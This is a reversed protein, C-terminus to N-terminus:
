FVEKFVTKGENEIPYPALHAHEADYVKGSVKEVNYSSEQYESVVSVAYYNENEYITMDGEFNAVDFSGVVGSNNIAETVFRVHMETDETPKYFEIAEKNDQARNFVPSKSTTKEVVHVMADFYFASGLPLYKIPNRFSVYVEQGDTMVKIRAFNQISAKENLLELALQVISDKGLKIVEEVDKNMTIEQAYSATYNIILSFLVFVKMMKLMLIRTRKNNCIKSLANFANQFLIVTLSSSVMFYNGHLEVKNRIAM